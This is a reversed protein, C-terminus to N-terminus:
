KTKGTSRPRSSQPKAPPPTSVTPKTTSTPNTTTSTSGGGSSGAKSTSSGSPGTYSGSAYPNATYPPYYGPYAPYYGPNYGSYPRRYYGPYEAPPPGESSSPFQGAAPQDQATQLPKAPGEAKGLIAQISTRIKKRLERLEDAASAREGSDKAAEVRELATRLAGENESKLNDYQEKQQANLVAGAPLRFASKVAADNRVQWNTAAPKKTVASDGANPYPTGVDDKVEQAPLCAVWGFTLLITAM